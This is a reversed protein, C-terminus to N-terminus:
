FFFIMWNFCRWLTIAFLLTLKNKEGVSIICRWFLCRHSVILERYKKKLGQHRERLQNAMLKYQDREQQCIDLEKSLILLAEKKSELKQKCIVFQVFSCINWWYSLFILPIRLIIYFLTNHLRFRYCTMVVHGCSNTKMNNTNQAQKLCYSIVKKIIIASEITFMDKILQTTTTFSIRNHNYFVFVLCCTTVDSFSFLTYLFTQCKKYIDTLSLFSHLSQWWIFKKQHEHWCKWLRSYLQISNIFSDLWTDTILALVGALNRCSCPVFVIEKAM